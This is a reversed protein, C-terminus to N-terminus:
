QYATASINCHPIRNLVTTGSHVTKCYIFFLFVFLRFPMANINDRNSGQM